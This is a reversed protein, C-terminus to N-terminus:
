APVGEIISLAAQTPMVRVLTFGASNLLERYEAETRELAGYHVLMTIDDLPGLSPMNGAPLVREMVLLRSHAAMARRCQTLIAQAQPADWDHIVRKLVYADGGGPLRQFFDGAMRTCRDAVGAADLLSQASEVVAPLDFLVGRAQPYRQLIAALLAGQGGGVDIITAMGAFDYAELIAQGEPGSLGTM